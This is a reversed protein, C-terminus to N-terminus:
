SLLLLLKRILNLYFLLILLSYKVFFVFSCLFSPAPTKKIPYFNTTTGLIDNERQVKKRVEDINRSTIISIDFKKVKERKFLMYQDEMRDKNIREYLEGINKLKKNMLDKESHYNLPDIHLSKTLLKDAIM